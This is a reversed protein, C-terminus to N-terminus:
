YTLRTAPSVAFNLRNGQITSYGNGKLQGATLAM